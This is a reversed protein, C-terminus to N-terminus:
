DCVEYQDRSSVHMQGKPANTYALRCGSRIPRCGQQNCMIQGSVQPKAPAADLKARNKQDAPANPEQRKAVPKKDQVKECENDDNVRYGARCTIKICRDGDARFGTDCVLPCIRGTRGKVADLADISATKLELKMGAHKNFLDLAKQSAANWNGDVTGTSCGVRRLEGQLARPLDVASQEPKETPSVAALQKKESAAKEATLRAQEAAATKEQEAQKVKEAALRVKEQEALRAREAAAAKEQEIQKAREAAIRAEEAVKAAAAAKAQEGQRAGEAALRAKEQEALRAKETASAKAEEAAIKKLQVKALNAYFGDPYAQLFAEWADRDGAQLALEYDRRVAAQPDAQPGTAIPKAPVLPV